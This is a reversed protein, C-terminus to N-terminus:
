LSGIDPDYRNPSPVYPTRGPNYSWGPDPAMKAGTKPDRWVKVTEIVGTKKSVLVELDSLNGEGTSIELGMRRVDRESLARVRCRCRWGNPPWHTHWFPDDHRFVKGHLVRHAPRTVADRVAVYQYYPRDDINQQFEKWRGAMLSTRMNTEYITALRWPSGIQVQTVVGDADIQEQKGWWGLPKLKPELNRQFDRLLMGEDLAKQLEDRITQLVDLRMAKAVTFARSHAEQWLDQWDWSFAYGKGRFYAIAREPPLQLAYLLDVDGGPAAFESAPHAICSARHKKIKDTNM